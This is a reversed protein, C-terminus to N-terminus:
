EATIKTRGMRNMMKYDFLWKIDTLQCGFRRMFHHFFHAHTKIIYSGKLTHIAPIVIFNLRQNGYFIGNKLPIKKINIRPSKGLPLIYLGINQLFGIETLNLHNNM